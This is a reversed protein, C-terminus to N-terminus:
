LIANLLKEEDQIKIESKIFQKNKGSSVLTKKKLNKKKIYGNIINIIDILVNRKDQFITILLNTKISNIINNIGFEEFVQLYTILEPYLYNKKLPININSCDFSSLLKLFLQSNTKLLTFIKEKKYIGFPIKLLGDLYQKSKTSSDDTKSSIESLKRMAKEKISDSCNMLCIQQEIPIKNDDTNSSLKNTYEITKKIAIKFNKKIEFPLSDFLITQEQTDINGNTDNSLLDYLLYSIYYLQIDNYKTLLHILIDRQKYLTSDIFITILYLHIKINM